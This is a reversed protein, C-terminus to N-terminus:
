LAKGQRRVGRKFLWRWALVIGVVIVAALSCTLWRWYDAQGEGVSTGGIVDRQPETTPAAFRSKSQLRQEEGIRAISKEFQPRLAEAPRKLAMEIDDDWVLVAKTVDLQFVDPEISGGCTLEETVSTLRVTTRPNPHEEYEITRPWYMIKGDSNTTLWDKIRTSTLLEGQKGLEDVRVPMWGVDKDIWVRCLSVRSGAPCEIDVMIRGEPDTESSLFAHARISNWLSEDALEQVQLQRGLQYNSIFNQCFRAPYVAPNPPFSPTSIYAKRQYRLINGNNDYWQTRRGDYALQVEHSSKDLSSDRREYDVRYMNGEQWYEYRGSSRKNGDAWMIETTELARFHLPPVRSYNARLHEFVLDLTDARACCSLCLIAAMPVSVIANRVNSGM